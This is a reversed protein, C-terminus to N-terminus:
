IELDYGESFAVKLPVSLKITHEMINKIQSAIDAIYKEDDPVEFVLEDHVQLVLRSKGSLFDPLMSVRGLSLRMVDDAGGQIPMNIAEREAAQRRAFNNSDLGYIFRRRGMLSIVYGNEKAFETTEKMYDQVKPFFKFYSKMFANAEAVGLNISRALGFASMGYLLGFNVTKAIRRQSDDVADYEIEFIKAATSRHIDRDHKFADLLGEDQSMHAMVRLDIQSYDFSLMKYGKQPIFFKRIVKGEETKIPLNQLNPNNSSLRGTATYMPNFESHIRFYSALSVDQGLALQQGTSKADMQSFRLALDLFPKIYTNLLKSLRRHMLVKEVAPHAPALEQLVEDDTSFGTKTKKKAPLQLHQFLIDGLQKPSRINFEFGIDAYIQKELEAIQKELDKSYKTILETNVGIGRLHMLAVGWLLPKDEVYQLWVPISDTKTYEPFQKWLDTVRGLTKYELARVQEDMIRILTLPLLKSVIQEPSIAYQVILDAIGYEGKGTALGYSLAPIDLLFNPEMIQGITEISESSLQSTEIGGPTDNFLEYFGFSLVKVGSFFKINLDDVPIHHLTHDKYVLIHQNADNKSEKEVIEAVIALKENVNKQRLDYTKITEHKFGEIAELLEKKGIIHDKAAEIIKDISKKLDTQLSKTQTEEVMTATYLDDTQPKHQAAIEAFKNLKPMLSKFRLKSFISVVQPLNFDCTVADEYKFALPADIIITALRKSLFALEEENTLKEALGKSKARIADLNKYIEELAGYTNILDGATKPGVGKVGPINDSADGMLAKLDIIHKPTVGMATFVQQEDFDVLNSFSGRPMIVHIKDNVLQYLDRDGTLIHTLSVPGHIDKSARTAIIGLLDDAEYGEVKLVPINLAKLVEDVYDLQDILESDTKPRNAKYGVYETHRFTPAHTDLACFVYEPRLKLLVDLLMSTFGYVANVPHGDETTLSLPYAHYARHLLSNADIGLLLGKQITAM